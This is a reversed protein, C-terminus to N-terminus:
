VIVLDAAKVLLKPFTKKWNNCVTDNLYLVVDSDTPEEVKLMAPTDRHVLIRQVFFGARGFIDAHRPGCGMLGGGEALEPAWFVVPIKPSRNDFHERINAVNQFVLPDGMVVVMDAGALSSDLAARTLQSANTVSEETTDVAAHHKKVNDKERKKGPNVTLDTHLIFLKPKPKAKYWHAHTVKLVQVQLEPQGPVEDTLGTFRNKAVRDPESTYLGANIPDGTFAMIVPRTDTGGLATHLAKLAPTSTGLFADIRKPGTLGVLHTALTALNAPDGEAFAAVVDVHNPGPTPTNTAVPVVTGSSNVALKESWDASWDPVLSVSERISPMIAKFDRAQVLNSFGLALFGLRKTAM